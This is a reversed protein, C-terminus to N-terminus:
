FEDHKLVRAVDIVSCYLNNCAASVAKHKLLQLTVEGM